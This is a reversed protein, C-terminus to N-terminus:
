VTYVRGVRTGIDAMRLSKHLAAHAQGWPMCTPWPARGAGGV